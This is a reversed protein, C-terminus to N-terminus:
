SRKVAKGVIPTEEILEDLTKTFFATARQAQLEQDYRQVIPDADILVPGTPDGGHDDDMQKFDALTMRNLPRAPQYRFDTNDENPPPPIPSLLSMQVLRNLCENLVQTPVGLQVGLDSATCPPLCDRFRRGIRLLVTLSLRERMSEALTIWAAQSNRFHVNQVAYSVQGGLLIFLWFIYLGFMLIPLIGLSGFFSRQQIVKSLYLFALYNNAMVLGAVVVAGVLASLWLVRTNPIFKYFLTLIIMLLVISLSPLAWRLVAAITTGIGFPMNQAFFSFFAGASLATVAAFFLVAGLTLVTWYYVVRMVWSRGRRVGWIENFVNEVTTFLQVVIVILTLVGVVGATSSKSGDIFGDILKVLEPNVEVQAEEGAAEASPAATPAATAEDEPSPVGSAPRQASNEPKQGRVNLTAATVIDSRTFSADDYDNWENQLAEYQTIQPAIFKIIKNLTNVALDPDKRDLVFGAVLMAIAVLPGLGLMSSFSLAAARSFAKTEIIGTITISLIRLAAYSLGRLSREGLVETRWIDHQYIRKLRRIVHTAPM